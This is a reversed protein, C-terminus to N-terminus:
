SDPERLRPPWHVFVEKDMKSNLFANKIDYQYVPLDYLVSLAVMIRFSRIQATSSFTKEYDIGFQQKYGQVVLRAKFKIVKGFENRKFDYVWRCTIPTVGEPCYVEEFTGHDMISKIEVDMADRFEQEYKGKVM